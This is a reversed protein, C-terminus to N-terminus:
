WVYFRSYIVRIFRMYGFSLWKGNEIDIFKKEDADGTCYLAYEQWWKKDDDCYGAELVTFGTETVFSVTKELTLFGWGIKSFYPAAEASVPVNHSM